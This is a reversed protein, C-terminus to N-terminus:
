RALYMSICCQDFMKQRHLDCGQWVSVIGFGSRFCLRLERELVEM